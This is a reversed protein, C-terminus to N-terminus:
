FRLDIEGIREYHVRADHRDMTERIIKRRADMVFEETLHDAILPRAEEFTMPQAERVGLCKFLFIVDSQMEFPGAIDGPQINALSPSITGFHTVPTYGIEGGALKAEEDFGYKMLADHFSTGSQIARYAEEATDMDRVALEALNVERPHVYHSRNSEFEQRKATDPIEAQERLVQALRRNLYNQFTNEVSMAVETEDYHPGELYTQMAYTRYAVGEVLNFFSGVSRIHGRSESPTFYTEQLFTGVTLDFGNYSGVVRDHWDGPVRARFDEMEVDAVPDLHLHGDMREWLADMLEQDFRFGDIVEDMHERRRLETKQRVALDRIRSKNEAYQTETIIPTTIRDTVKIISFGRTTRVPQSVEGVPLSFAVSEFGVDMDDVTFYGLDGGSERLSRSEFIDKALEEFSAGEAVLQYLSDATQRDPAYLHSARLHTNYRLFLNQLDREEVSVERAIHRRKFEDMVVQRYILNKRHTGEHDEHWNNDVGYQVVAYFNVRQDLIERLLTPTVNLGRGSREFVHQFAGLFEEDSVQYSGIEALPEAKEEVTERSCFSLVMVVAVAALVVQFSVVIRRFSFESM